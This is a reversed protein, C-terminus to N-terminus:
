NDKVYSFFSSYSLNQAFIPFKNKRSVSLRKITQNVVFNITRRGHIKKM